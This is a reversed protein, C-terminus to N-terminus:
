LWVPVQLRYTNGTRVVIAATDAPIDQGSAIQMQTATVTIAGTSTTVLVQYSSGSGSLVLGPFANGATSTGGGALIIEKVDKTDKIPLQGPDVGQREAENITIPGFVSGSPGNFGGQNNFTMQIDPEEPREINFVMDGPEFGRLTIAPQNEGSKYITIPGHHEIPVDPGFMAYLEEALAPATLSADERLLRHRQRFYM